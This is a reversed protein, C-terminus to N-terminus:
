PAGLELRLEQEGRGYECHRYVLTEGEFRNSLGRLALSAGIQVRRDTDIVVV